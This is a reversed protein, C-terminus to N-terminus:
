EGKAKRTKTNPATDEVVVLDGDDIMRQYYLSGDVEVPEQGIYEHPNHEAPVRLGDAAAVKIKSM